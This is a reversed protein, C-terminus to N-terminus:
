RGQEKLYKHIEAWIFTIPFNRELMGIVTERADKDLDTYFGIGERKMLEVLTRSRSVVIMMENTM